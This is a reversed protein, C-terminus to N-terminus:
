AHRSSNRLVSVRFKRVSNATVRFKRFSNATSQARTPYHDSQLLCCYANMMSVNELAGSNRLGLSPHKRCANGFVRQGHYVSFPLWLHLHLQICFVAHNGHRSKPITKGSYLTHIQGGSHQCEWRANLALRSPNKLEVGAPSKLYVPNKLELTSILGIASQANSPFPNSTTLSAM